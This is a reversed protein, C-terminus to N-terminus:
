RYSRRLCCLHEHDREDPGCGSGARLVLAALDDLDDKLNIGELQHVGSASSKKPAPSTMARLRWVPSQGM